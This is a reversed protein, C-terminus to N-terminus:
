KKYVYKLIVDAYREGLMLQGERGFHPDKEDKLMNLGEASVCASNPIFTSITNIMENFATSGKGEGRWYALEGAVFFLDKDKLDKRLDSVLEKLQDPYAVVTKSGSNGEGQHWLIARIKGWKQAEKARKISSDYYGASAGKLWSEIRTAGRANVVMGLPRGTVESVKKAVMYAPNMGQYKKPDKIESNKNMPNTAGEWNGALTYLYCNPITDFDTKALKGRGAMNSQGICLFIDLEPLVEFTITYTQTTSRDGSFVTITTTRENKSGNINKASSIKFTAKTDYVTPRIAPIKKTTYPLYQTYTYKGPSFDIGFGAVEIQSLRAKDISPASISDQEAAYVTIFFSFLIFSLFLKLKM